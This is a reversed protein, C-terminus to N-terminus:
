SNRLAAPILGSKKKSSYSTIGVDKAKTEFQAASGDNYDGANGSKRRLDEHLEPEKSSPDKKGPM